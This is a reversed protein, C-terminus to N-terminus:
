FSNLYEKVLPPSTTCPIDKPNSRIEFQPLHLM